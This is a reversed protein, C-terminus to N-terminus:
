SRGPDNAADEPPGVYGFLKLAEDLQRVLARHEEGEDLAQRAHILAQEIQQLQETNFTNPPDSPM